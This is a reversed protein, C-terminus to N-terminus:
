SSCGQAVELRRGKRMRDASLSGPGLPRGDVAAQGLRGAWRVEDKM